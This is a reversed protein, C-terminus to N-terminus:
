TAVHSPELLRSELKEKIFFKDIEMHKTRDHQVLNNAINITSKNDCRLMM